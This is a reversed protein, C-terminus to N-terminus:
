VCNTRESLSAAAAVPDTKKEVPFTEGTLVAQNVFLDRAALVLGDAPVLSGASLVVVDGPVVEEAPIEQEQGARVVTTTIQVQARLKETATNANYEQVFSLGASSLVIGLVIVADLWDGLLASILTAFLLILVIPSKFQAFFVGLATLKERAKLTNPGVQELRRAAESPSLGQEESHLTQFLDGPTQSWYSSQTNM